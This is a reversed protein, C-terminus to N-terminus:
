NLAEFTYEILNKDEQKAPAAAPVNPISVHSPNPRKTNEVSRVKPQKYTFHLAFGAM